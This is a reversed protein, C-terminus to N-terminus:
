NLSNPFCVFGYLMTIYCVQPEAYCLYICNNYLQLPNLCYLDWTALLFPTRTHRIFIQRMTDYKDVLVDFKHAVIDTPANTHSKLICNYWCMVYGPELM